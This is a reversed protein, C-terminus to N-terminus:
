LLNLFLQLSFPKSLQPSGAAPRPPWPCAPTYTCMRTHMQTRPHADTHPHAYTHAAHASCTRRCTRTCRHTHAYSVQAHADACMHAGTCTHMASSRMHTQLCTHVPAHTCVHVTHAHPHSLSLILPATHRQTHITDTPTRYCPVPRRPTEAPQALLDQVGWLQWASHPRQRGLLSPLLPFDLTAWLLGTGGAPPRLQPRPSSAQIPPPPPYPVGPLLSHPLSIVWPRSGPLQHSSQGTPGLFSAAPGGGRFHRGAKTPAAPLRPQHKLPPMSAEVWPKQNWSLLPFSGYCWAPFSLRKGM